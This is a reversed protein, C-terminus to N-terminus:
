RLFAAADALWRRAGDAGGDADALIRTAERYRAAAVETDGLAEAARGAGLLAHSRGPSIALSADFAELAAAPDGRLLLMEGLLERAPLVAGPTVPHKDVSDETDAARRMLTLAEDYRQEAYAIWAAVTTRQADVHVSWYTEGMEVAREYLADLAEVAAAAATVDSSRAAGVGVAFHTISEAGPFREWPFDERAPVPLRAAQEWRGRELPVRAQAAAIGYASAFNAQYQTEAEIERLAARAERDRGQQLRAYILYDLAHVHHMSTTDGVPQRLAADASRRNWSVVDPWYGLRVFIHSPMHLAHPVDPALSDYERAVRVGREALAPNDYAHITYHFLGPHEPADAMLQELLEGARAQTQFTSDDAPANSLQALAHFAGADTDDPHARHVRQLASEWARLRARHGIDASDDFYAAIADIHARERDTGNDIARDIARAQRVADVGNRFAEDTPPEWLPHLQTMAIGWYAIACDADAAAAAQFQTRAQEYMMHHLLALGAHFSQTAARDCSTPFHVTGVEGHQHAQQATAPMAAALALSCLALSLMRLPRLPHAQTPPHTSSLDRPGHPTRM